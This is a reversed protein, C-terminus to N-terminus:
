GFVILAVSAAAALAVAAFFYADRRRGQRKADQLPVLTEDGAPDTTEPAQPHSSLARLVARRFSRERATAAARLHEGARQRANPGYRRILAEAQSEASRRRRAGRVDWARFHVASGGAVACVLVFLWLIWV